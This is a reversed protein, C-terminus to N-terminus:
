STTCQDDDCMDVQEVVEYSLLKDIEESSLSTKEGSVTPKYFSMMDKHMVFEDSVIQSIPEDPLVTEVIPLVYEIVEHILNQEKTPSAFGTSTHSFFDTKRIGSEVQLIGTVCEEVPVSFVTPEYSLKSTAVQMLHIPGYPFIFMDKVYLKSILPFLSTTVVM